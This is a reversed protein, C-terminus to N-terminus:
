LMNAKYLTCLHQRKKDCLWFHQEGYFSVTVSPFFQSEDTLQVDEVDVIGDRGDIDNGVNNDGSLALLQETKTSQDHMTPGEQDLEKKYKKEEADIKESVVVDLEKKGRRTIKLRFVETM